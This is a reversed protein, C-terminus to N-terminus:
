GWASAGSLKWRSAYQKAELKRRRAGARAGNPRHKIDLELLHAQSMNFTVNPWEYGQSDRGTRYRFGLHVAAVILPGNAVYDPGLTEGDPYDCPFNEAIHKLRYSDTDPRITKTAPVSALLALARLVQDAVLIDKLEERYRLFRDYHEYPNEWAGDSKREPRGCGWGWKHLRDDRDMVDLTIAHAVARLLTSASGDLGREAFYTIFATPDVRRRAGAGLSTRLDANSNFGLGRALAEARHSSKIDPATQRLGAKLRNLTVPNLTIALEVM